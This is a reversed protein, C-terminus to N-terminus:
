VDAADSAGREFPNAFAVAPLRPLRIDCFTYSMPEGYATAAHAGSEWEADSLPWGLLEMLPAMLWANEGWMSGDGAIFSYRREVERLLREEHPTM